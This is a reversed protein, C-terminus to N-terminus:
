MGYRDLVMATVLMVVALSLLSVAIIGKKRNMKGSRIRFILSVALGAIVLVYITKAILKVDM